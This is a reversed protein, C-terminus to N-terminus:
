APQRLCQSEEVNVYQGLLKRVLRANLHHGSCYAIFHGVFDCGALALDGVADLMKHRVCEDRFRLRNDIPGDDNFVLLDRCTVRTGLGQSRLWEAEEELLFTRAASLEKHFSEPTVEIGFSQLGISTGAGYDIFCQVSFSGDKSPQAEVWTAEDGVRTRRHIVRQSRTANQEVIGAHDLVEVFPLSSGDCGPMEPQDVWVECNDVQMGALAAMVHEVMEVTVGQYSLTTRRPVEIRNHVCAPVRHPPQLDGRLFVIGTNAPAPRFELNVDQGSWYGFGKIRATRAITRQQRLCTNM